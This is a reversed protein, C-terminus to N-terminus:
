WGCLAKRLKQFTEKPLGKTFMDAKQDNTDIRSIEIGKELGIKDRFFHYKTAIHKTRPTIKPAKAMGLAGNNDEFVTSHLIVPDAFDLNLNTGVEQLLERMPLLERMAQSLAIYEAELTSLAIETQLKSVWMLPCNGLTIVFGTRSKVCVPDQNDEHNWLGAFDADVYCDLKMTESPQFKMGQNATGQLYRCIRKVGEAHSARPCHTFRACQHVAFQIEPRTNSSLYMAMGVASAYEWKEDFKSGSADTGLPTSAAPTAKPNCEEMGCYKILKKILGTQTLTIEGSKPDSKLEVGLFAYVDEEETLVFGETKLSAIFDDIREMDKAFFLCDDVYALVILGDGYFMCPDKTSPKLGQKQLATSLHRYWYMPAQVLGYLSKELKLVEARGQDTEFMAPLEMYVEENLSAQVFANSFDVQKTKWGQQISLSMVLRVTSWSVVPAYKEFYDVGEVQRDGRACFRAKFKRLRGDPYRKIKLAWTGPLVNAGEPMDDRRVVKWTDHAELEQIEQVMAKRFEDRHPGAMAEGLTPLDPDQKHAKMLSPCSGMAQPIMGEMLGFDSDLLLAYVYAMEINRKRRVAQYVQGCLIKVAQYGHQSDFKFRTVERRTRVPRGRQEIPDTVPTPEDAKTIIPPEAPKNAEEKRHELPPEDLPKAQEQVPKQHKRIDHERQKRADVEEESCWEDTLEPVYDEDDYESKYRQFAILQPWVDPEQEQTAHVTEFFEDYVVHFQPSINGTRLNRVLGVTSAHLPSAGMYQGQRAKPNWRPLKMGDQLRAELIYVPCGWTHANLLASHSSKTRTWLEDPNFGSTISPKANHLHVAHAMAMPWLDRESQSPWRLAAHIMMTRTTSSVNKIANEAVGNHHHGGVGSRRVSQGQNLLEDMFDKATFVGNDSSYGKVQVGESLAEREYKLKSELTEQATFAVQFYVRIHGTAADCFVTGGKYKHSSTSAGRANFVRGPLRSEFQDTFVLDGPELKDQKLVGESHKHSTSGDKPNRQQKGFQCSACKPPLVTTKGM